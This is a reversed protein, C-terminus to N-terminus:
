RSHMQRMLDCQRMRGKKGSAKDHNSYALFKGRKAKDLYRAPVIGKVDAKRGIEAKLPYSGLVKM